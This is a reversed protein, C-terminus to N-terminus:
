GNIKDDIMEGRYEDGNSFKIVCEGEMKGDSWKGEKITGDSCILKGYGHPANAQNYSGLTEQTRSTKVDGTYVSEDQM